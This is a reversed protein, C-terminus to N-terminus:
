APSSPSRPSAPKSSRAKKALAKAVVAKRRKGGKAFPAAKKGKFNNLGAM